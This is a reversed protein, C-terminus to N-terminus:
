KRLAPVLGAFITPLAVRYGEATPHMGDSQLLGRAALPELEFRLLGLKHRRALDTYLAEFQRIFDAGYNRPLTMGALVVTIGAQQMAVIMQDLNARTVGLPMGRLGDNAGLELLVVKPNLRLIQPLRDLGGSTTDGSLGANVVRFNLRRADLEKQLLSPFDEGRAVGYGATLSDGFCVLIPRTSAAPKPAATSASSASAQTKPRAASTQGWAVGLCAVAAVVRCVVSWRM